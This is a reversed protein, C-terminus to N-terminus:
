LTQSAAGAKLLVGPPSGYVQKFVRTLHAQDAFGVAQAADALPLGGRLLARARAVRWNRLWAQPPLGYRRAFQKVLTTRHRDQAQALAELDPACAPDAAMRERLLACVDTLDTLDAMDAVGAPDGSAVRGSENGGDPTRGHAALLGFVAASMRARRQAAPIEDATLANLWTACLSADAIVPGARRVGHADLAQEHDQFWAPDLYAMRYVLSGAATGGTHVQGPAIVVLEGARATYPAGQVTFECCGQEVAGIAWADHFHPAYRYARLDAILVDGPLGAGCHWIHQSVAM